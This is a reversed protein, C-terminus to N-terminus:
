RRCRGDLPTSGDKCETIVSAGRTRAAPASATTALPAAAAPASGDGGRRYVIQRAGRECSGVVKGQAPAQADLTVLTFDAVGAARIKADIGASIAACNSAAAAGASALGLTLAALVRATM